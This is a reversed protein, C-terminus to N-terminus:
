SRDAKFGVEVAGNDGTAFEAGVKGGYLWAKDSASESEDDVLVKARGFSIGTYGGLVLRVGKTLEPTFDAGVALKHSRWKVTIDEIDDKAEFNYMYSGYVRFSDFDYGAKFGLASVRDDITSADKIDQQTKFLYDGEVGVLMGDACAVSSLAALGLAAVLVSHRM